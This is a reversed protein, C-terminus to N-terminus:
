ARYSLLQELQQLMKGYPDIIAAMQELRPDDLYMTINLDLYDKFAFTWGGYARYMHHLNQASCVMIYLIYSSHSMAWLLTYICTHMCLPVLVDNSRIPEIIRELKSFYKDASM